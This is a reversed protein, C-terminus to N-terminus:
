HASVASRVLPVYTQWTEASDVPREAEGVTVGSRRLFDVLQRSSSACAPTWRPWPDDAICRSACGRRRCAPM